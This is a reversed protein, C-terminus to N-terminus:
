PLFYYQGVPIKFVRSQQFVKFGDTEKPHTKQWAQYAEPSVGTAFLWYNYAEFLGQSLLYQQHDFLRFPYTKQNGQMWQLLFRTRTATLQEIGTETQQGAAAKAFVALVTKEFASTKKADSLQQWIGPVLLNSYAKFLQSKIEETRTSYSELNLFLEGYLAARIWNRRNVYYITANYYNSSYGPDLEIGKEWQSIAEELDNDMAFMEAYENYIVGSGPFKRLAARYLKSCEKYAAVAKYAMGLVQFSQEDANSKEVLQKGIEIARSFDRKLYNTFVLDRLIEINDPEQKSARGLILVANEYDGKQVLTRATEQLLRATQEQAQVTYMTTVFVLCTFVQKM